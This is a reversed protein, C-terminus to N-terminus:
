LFPSREDKPAGSDIESDDVLKRNGVDCLPLVLVGDSPFRGNPMYLGRLRGCSRADPTSVAEM